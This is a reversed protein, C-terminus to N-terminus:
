EHITHPHASSPSTPAAFSTSPTSRSQQAMTVAKATDSWRGWGSTEFHPRVKLLYVSSPQLNRLVKERVIDDEGGRTDTSLVSSFVAREGAHVGGGGGGGGEGEARVEVSPRASLLAPSIPPSYSGLLPDKDKLKALARHSLPPPLRNNMTRRRYSSSVSAVEVGEGGGDGGGGGGGEGVGRSGGRSSPISIATSSQREVSQVDPNGEYKELEDDYTSTHAPFVVVTTGNAAVAIADMDYRQSATLREAMNWRLLVETDSIGVATLERINSTSLVSADSVRSDYSM